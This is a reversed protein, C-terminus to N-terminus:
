FSVYIWVIYFYFDKSELAHTHLLHRLVSDGISYILMLVFLSFALFCVTGTSDIAERKRFRATIEYRTRSINEKMPFQKQKQFERSNM